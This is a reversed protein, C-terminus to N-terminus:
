RFNLCVIAGSTFIAFLILYICKGIKALRTESKYENFLCFIAIYSLAVQVSMLFESM